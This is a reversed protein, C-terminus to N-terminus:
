SCTFLLLRLPCLGIKRKFYFPLETDRTSTVTSQSGATAATEEIAVAAVIAEIAAAAEEVAKGVAVVVAAMVAAAVATGVGVAQGDGAAVAELASRRLGHKM